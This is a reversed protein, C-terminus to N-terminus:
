NDFVYVQWPFDERHQEALFEDMITSYMRVQYNQELEHDQVLTNAYDNSPVVIAAVNPLIQLESCKIRWEREWTFDILNEGTPEYRVHRWSLKEPLASFDTEPQYIVPRGGQDFLWSKKILIGFLSYKSYNLSNVLGNKLSTLPAETFCICHDGSRIMQDGGRIRHESIISRLRSYAEKWDDRPGTFHVLNDSIDYRM